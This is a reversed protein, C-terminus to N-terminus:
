KDRSEKSTSRNGLGARCQVALCLKSSPIKQPDKRLEWVTCEAKCLGTHAERLGRLDGEAKHPKHVSTKAGQAWM